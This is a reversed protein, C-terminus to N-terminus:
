YYIESAPLRPSATGWFNLTVKNNFLLIIGIMFNADCM